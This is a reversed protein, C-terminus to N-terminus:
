LLEDEGLAARLVELAQEAAICATMASFTYSTANFEYALRSESVAERLYVALVEAPDPVASSVASV